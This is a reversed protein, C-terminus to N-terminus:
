GPCTDMTFEYVCGCTMSQVCECTYTLGMCPNSLCAAVNTNPIKSEMGGTGGGAVGRLETDQLNRITEKHLKLNKM